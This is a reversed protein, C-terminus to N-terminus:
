LYTCSLTVRHRARGQELASHCFRLKDQGAKKCPLACPSSKRGQLIKKYRCFVLNKLIKALSLM